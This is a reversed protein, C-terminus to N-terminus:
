VRRKCESVRQQEATNRLRGGNISNSIYFPHYTALNSPDNGGEVIFTYTVGRTLVLEPILTGNVYWSIGWGSQGLVCVCVCM